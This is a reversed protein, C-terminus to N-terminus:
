PLPLGAEGDALRPSVGLGVVDADFVFAVIKAYLHLGGGHAGAGSVEALEM